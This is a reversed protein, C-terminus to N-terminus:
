RGASWAVTLLFSADSVAEVDHAVGAALTIMQGPSLNVPGEPLHLRVRGSISQFAIPAKTQHKRVRTGKRVGTLTVHLNAQKALTKSARGDVVSRAEGIMAKSEAALDHALVVEALRQKPRRSTGTTEGEPRTRPKVPSNMTYRRHETTNTAAASESCLSDGM